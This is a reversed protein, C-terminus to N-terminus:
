FYKKKFFLKKIKFETLNKPSKGFHPDRDVPGHREHYEECTSNDDYWLIGLSEAKKEAKYKIDRLQEEKIARALIERHEKNPDVVKDGM